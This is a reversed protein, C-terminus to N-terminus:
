LLFHWIIIIIIIIIIIFSSFLEFQLFDQIEVWHIEIIKEPFILSKIVKVIM